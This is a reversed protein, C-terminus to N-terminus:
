VYGGATQMTRNREYEPATRWGCALCHFVNDDQHERTNDMYGGCRKCRGRFVARRPTETHRAAMPPFDAEDDEVSLEPFLALLQEDDLDLEVDEFDDGLAPEDYLGDIIKDLCALGDNEDSATNPKPENVEARDIMIDVSRVLSRSARRPKSQGQDFLGGCGKCRLDGWKTGSRQRQKECHSLTITANLRGCWAAGNAAQWASILDNGTDVAAEATYYM